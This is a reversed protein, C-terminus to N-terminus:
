VAKFMLGVPSEALASFPYGSDNAEKIKKALRLLHQQRRGALAIPVVFAEMQPHLSCRRSPSACWGDHANVDHRHVLEIRLILCNPFHGANRDIHHMAQFGVLHPHKRADDLMAVPDNRV